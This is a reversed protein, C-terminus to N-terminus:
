VRARDWVCPERPESWGLETAMLAAVRPIAAEAAQSDLSALGYVATTIVRRPHRRPSSM